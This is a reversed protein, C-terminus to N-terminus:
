TARGGFGARYLDAMELGEGRGESLYRLIYKGLIDTELNVKAGERKRGLTTVDLTHPILYVEFRREDV